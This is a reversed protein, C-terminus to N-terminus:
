EHLPVWSGDRVEIWSLGLGSVPSSLAEAVSRRTPRGADAVAGGLATLVSRTAAGALGAASQLSADQGALAPTTSPSGCVVARVGEAARGAQGIFWPRAADPGALFTGGWNATRWRRLTEAAGAADGTHIVLCDGAGSAACPFPASDSVLALEPDSGVLARRLTTDPGTVVVHGMGPKRTGRLIEAAVQDSAPCLSIITPGLGQGPVTLVTPLGAEALIPAASRATEDSWLGIVAQVDPDRALVKAQAVAEGPDLADNLAVLAVRYHGLRREENVSALEGKISPLIAYGLPRGVGEFPAIVGIKVIAPTDGTWQCAALALGIACLVAVGV